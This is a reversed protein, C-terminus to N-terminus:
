TPKQGVNIPKNNHAKQMVIVKKIDHNLFTIIVDLQCWCAWIFTPWFGVYIPCTSLSLTMLPEGNNRCKKAAINGPALGPSIPGAPISENCADAYM